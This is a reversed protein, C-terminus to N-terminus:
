AHLFTFQASINAQMGNSTKTPGPLSFGISMVMFAGGAPIVINPGAGGLIQDGGTIPVSWGESGFTAVDQLGVQISGNAIVPTDGQSFGVVSYGYASSWTGPKMFYLSRVSFGSGRTCGFISAGGGPGAILMSGSPYNDQLYSLTAAGSILYDGTFWSGGSVEGATPNQSSYAIPNIVNMTGSNGGFLCSANITPDAPYGFVSVGLIQLSTAEAKTPFSTGSCEINVTNGALTPLMDLDQAPSQQFDQEPSQLPDNSDIIM